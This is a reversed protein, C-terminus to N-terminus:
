INEIIQLRDYRFLKQIAADIKLRLIDPLPKNANPNDWITPVFKGDKEMPIIVASVQGWYTKFEEISNINFKGIKELFEGPNGEIWNFLNKFGSEFDGYDPAVGRKRIYIINIENPVTQIAKECIIDGCKKYM